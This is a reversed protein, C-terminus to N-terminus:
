VIEFNWGKNCLQEVKAIREDITPDVMNEKVENKPETQPKITKQLSDIISNDIVIDKGGHNLLSTLYVVQSKLLDSKSM